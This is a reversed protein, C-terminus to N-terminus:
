APREMSLLALAGAHEPHAALLAHFRPMAARGFLARRYDPHRDLDRLQRLLRPVVKYQLRPFERGLQRVVRPAAADARLSAALGMRLMAAALRKKWAPEGHYCAALLHEDLQCHRWEDRLHLAHVQSHRADLAGPASRLYARALMVTREEVMAALWVWVLLLRPFWSALMAVGRLPASVRFLRQSPRAYWAPEASQLLREFMAIHKSEEAVFHELAQALPPALDARRRVANVIRILQREFWIFKETVALAQLQNARLRQRADLAAFSHTFSLPALADPMWPRGHDVEPLGDLAALSFARQRAQHNLTALSAFSLNM